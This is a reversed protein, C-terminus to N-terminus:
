LSSWIVWIGLPILYWAFQHLKGKQTIWVLLRLFIIGSILAATFGIFATDFTVYIVEAESLHLLMAGIIAPISILFSYEVAIEKSVGLLLATCITAGSRSIGPLIALGQVLGMILAFLWINMPFDTHAVDPVPQPRLRTALLLAGTLLFCIGVGLLHDRMTEVPEKIFIAMSGTVFTSLLIAPILYQDLCFETSLHSLRFWATLNRCVEWIRKRFYFCVAILTAVHLLIDFFLYNEAELQLLNEFLVLHGSSSIPLFETLGQLAGLFFAEIWSM